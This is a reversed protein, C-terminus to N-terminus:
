HVCAMDGSRTRRAATLRVPVHILSISFTLAPSLRQLPPEAYCSICMFVCKSNWLGVGFVHTRVRNEPPYQAGRIRKTSLETAAKNTQLWETAATTANEEEGTDKLVTAAKIKQRRECRRFTQLSVLM